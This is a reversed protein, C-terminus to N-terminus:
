ILKTVRDGSQPRGVRVEISAVSTNDGVRDVRVTCVYDRGHIIDFTFGRQVGQNKGVSLEVLDTDRDYRVVTGDIKPQAPRSPPPYAAVYTGLKAKTDSLESNLLEIRRNLAAIERGKSDADAAAAARADDAAAARALQDAADNRYKDILETTDGGQATLTGIQETLRAITAAATQEASEATSKAENSAQLQTELNSSTGQLTAVENSLRQKDDNLRRVEADLDNIQQAKDDLQANMDVELGDYKGKWDESQKLFTAAGMLFAAALVLNIVVFIRAVQNM